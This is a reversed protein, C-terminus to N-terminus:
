RKDLRDWLHQYLGNMTNPVVDLCDSLEDLSDGNYIAQEMINIILKLWLFVGESKDVLKHILCTAKSEPPFHKELIPQLKEIATKEIDPRNLDQLRLQSSGAFWRRFLQEPRSSVCVKLCADASLLRITSIMADEDGDFEDVGDMCSFVRIQPPKKLLFAQLVELLRKETWTHLQLNAPSTPYDRVDLSGFFAAPEQDAIQYLLSRLFGCISKQLATGLSWFFFAATIVRSGSSWAIPHQEARFREPAEGRIYKMLTSKRSGPKGSLWYVDNGHDIWHVFHMGLQDQEDGEDFKESGFIWRCTGEHSDCIEEERAFIEPFILSAKFKRQAYPSSKTLAQEDLCDDINSDITLDNTILDKITTRGQDFAIVLNQVRQELGRLDKIQQYSESYLRVLIRTDLVRQYKELTKFKDRLQNRRRLIRLGRQVSQGLDRKSTTRVRQLEAQIQVAIHSCKTAIEVLEEDQQGSPSSTQCISANLTNTSRAIMIDKLSNHIKAITNLGSYGGIDQSLEEADRYEECSGDRYIRRCKSAAKFSLDIVQLVGAVLSFATLPDM